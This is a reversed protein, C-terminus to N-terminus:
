RRPGICRVPNNDTLVEGSYGYTRGLSFNVESVCPDPSCANFSNTWYGDWEGSDCPGSFVPDIHCGGIPTSLLLELLESFEPVRWSASGGLSLGSCYSTAAEFSFRSNPASKQWQFGTSQDLVVGDGIDEWRSGCRGGDCPLSAECLEASASVGCSDTSCVHVGCCAYEVIVCLCETGECISGESCVEVEVAQNGCYDWAWVSEGSCERRPREPTCIAGHCDHGDPCDRDGSCAASCWTAGSDVWEGCVAGACEYDYECPDCYDGSGLETCEGGYCMEDDLCDVVDNDIVSDCDDDADNCIEHADPYTHEAEDACDEDNPVYDEPPACAEVVQEADGFGDGDFDLWFSSLVGDDIHDNCDNDVDDCIEDATPKITSDEDNCDDCNSVYGVPATCTEVPGGPDGFRDGDFDPCFTSTLGEDTQDDCDNDFGDCVEAVGPNLEPDTDDCDSSDEVYGPPAPCADVSQDLDGYGDEDADRYFTGVAEEDIDGDCDDDVANCLEHAGPHRSEDSDDCDLEAGCEETTFYGDHDADTCDDDGRELECGQSCGDGNDTNGDDCAEGDDLTGNGCIPITSDVHSCSIAVVIVVPILALCSSASIELM